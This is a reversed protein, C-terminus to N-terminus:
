KGSLCAHVVEALKRVHFPKQVFNVKAGPPFEKALRETNYGSTFLVKLSPKATQLIKALEPGAMGDPLILDTLLLDIKAKHREWIELADRGNSSELVKYGYSELIYHM